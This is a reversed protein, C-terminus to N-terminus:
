HNSKGVHGMIYKINPLIHRKQESSFWNFNWWWQCPWGTFNCFDIPASISLFHFINHQFFSNSSTMNLAFLFYGRVRVLVSKGGIQNKTFNNHQRSIIRAMSSVPSPPSARWKFGVSNISAEPILFYWCRSLFVTKM